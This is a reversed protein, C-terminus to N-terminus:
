FPLGDRIDAADSTPPKASANAREEFKFSEIWREAEKTSAFAARPPPRGRHQGRAPDVSEPDSNTNPESSAATNM